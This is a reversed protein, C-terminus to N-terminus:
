LATSATAEGSVIVNLQGTWLDPLPDGPGLELTGHVLLKFPANPTRLRETLETRGETTLVVDVRQTEPPFSPITGVRRVDPDSVSNATQPGIYLGMEPTDVGLTNVEVDVYLSKLTVKTITINGVERLEQVEDALNVEASLEFEVEARCADAPADCYMAGGFEQCVDQQACQLQPFSATQGLGCVSEQSDCVLAPDVQGCTDNGPDCQITTTTSLGLESANVQFSKDPLKFDFDDVDDDLICAGLGVFALILGVTFGLRRIM